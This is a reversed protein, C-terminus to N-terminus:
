ALQRTLTLVGCKDAHAWTYRNSTSRFRCMWRKVTLDYLSM